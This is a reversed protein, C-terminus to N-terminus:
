VLESKKEKNIKKQVPAGGIAAKTLGAYTQVAAQGDVLKGPHVTREETPGRFLGLCFPHVISRRTMQQSAFSSLEAAATTGTAARSFPFFFCTIQVFCFNAGDFM